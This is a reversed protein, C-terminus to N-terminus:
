QMKQVTVGEPVELKFQDDALEGNLTLSTVQIKLLLQDLPRSITILTPFQVGNFEKYGNYSASTV